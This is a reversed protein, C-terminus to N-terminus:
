LSGTSTGLSLKVGNWGMSAAVKIRCMELKISLDTHYFLYFVPHSRGEWSGCVIKYIKHRYSIGYSSSINWLEPVAPVNLIKVETHSPSSPFSLAGLSTHTTELISTSITCFWILVGSVETGPYFTASHLCGQIWVSIQQSKAGSCIRKFYKEALNTSM